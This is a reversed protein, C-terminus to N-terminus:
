FIVGELRINLIGTVEQVWVSEINMELYERPMEKTSSAEIGGYNDLIVIRTDPDVVKIFQKVKM